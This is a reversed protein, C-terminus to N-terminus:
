KGPGPPPPPADPAGAQEYRIPIRPTPPLMVSHAPNMAVAPVVAPTAPKDATVFAAPQVGNATPPADLKALLAKAKDMKPDSTLATQLHQRCLDTKGLYELMQALRWQAESEDYVKRFTSLGDDYRGARAETWGLTDVYQRNKPDLTVARSFAQIARDWQEEGVYCRGMEFFVRPENPFLQAAKRYAAEADAHDKLAIDFKALSLYALLYHPDVSIAQEYEKRAEERKAKRTEESLNPTEAEQAQWDGFAVCTAAQPPHKPVELPKVVAGPPM